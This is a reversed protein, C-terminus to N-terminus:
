VSPIGLRDEEKSGVGCLRLGTGTQMLRIWVIGAHSRNANTGCAYACIIYKEASDDWSREVEVEM